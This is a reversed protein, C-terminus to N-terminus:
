GVPCDVAVRQTENAAVTIQAGYCWFSGTGPGGTVTYRGPPLDLRFHCNAATAVRYAGRNGSTVFKVLGAHPQPSPSVAKGERNILPGGVFRLVGFVTGHAQSNGACAAAGLM